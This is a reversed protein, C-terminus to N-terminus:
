TYWCPCYQLLPLGIVGIDIIFHCILCPIISGTKEYMRGLVLGYALSYLMFLPGGVALHIVSYLAAQGANAALAGAGSARLLGYFSVRFFTEEAFANLVSFIIVPPWFAAGRISYTTLYFLAVTYILSGAIGVLFWPNLLKERRLTFAGAIPIRLKWLLLLAASELFFVPLYVPIRGYAEAVTDVPFLPWKVMGSRMLLAIIGFFVFFYAVFGGASYRRVANIRAAADMTALRARLNIGILILAGVAVFAMMALQAQTLGWAVVSETRLFEMMFRIDGYLILYLATIKGGELARANLNGPAYIRAHMKRLVLYIAANYAIEYLPVPNYFSLHLGFLSFDLQRGWCCGVLFCAIRGVANSLPIHVFFADSVDWYRFRMLLLLIIILVAPLLISAHFTHYTNSTIIDWFLGFTWLERPQYFINAARSSIYGAPLIFVTIIGFFKLLRAREHGAALMARYVLYLGIAVALVVFGNYIYNTVAVFIAHNVHYKILFYSVM